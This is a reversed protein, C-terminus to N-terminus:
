KVQLIKQNEFVVNEILNNFILKRHNEDQRIYEQSSKLEIVEYCMKHLVLPHGQSKDHILIAEDRSFGPLNYRNKLIFEESDATSFKQLKMLSLINYFPSLNGSPSFIKNLEKTSATFISVGSTAWFRMNDWFINEFSNITSVSEANEINSYNEFQDFEDFFIIYRNNKKNIGNDIIISNIESIMKPIDSESEFNKAEPELESKIYNLLRKISVNRSDMMNITAIKFEEKNQLKHSLFHYILSSKGIKSEGSIHCGTRKNVFDQLHLLERHRGGFMDPDRICGRSHFPNPGSYSDEELETIPGGTYYEYDDTSLELGFATAVKQITELRVTTGSGSLQLVRRITDKSINVEDAVHSIPRDGIRQKFEELAAPTLRCGNRDRMSVKEDRRTGAQM